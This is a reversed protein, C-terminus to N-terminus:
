WGRNNEHYACVMCSLCAQKDELEFTLIGGCKSGFQVKAIDYFKSRRLGPYNVSKVKPSNELERAIELANACSKDIRLSLTELGLSQLGANHPALCAGLNRYVQRRLKMLLTLDGFTKADEKLRPNGFLFRTTVINSGTKGLTLIVNAIAAM